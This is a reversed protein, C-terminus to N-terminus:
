SQFDLKRFDLKSETSQHARAMKLCLTHEMCLNKTIKDTGHVEYVIYYERYEMESRLWKEM